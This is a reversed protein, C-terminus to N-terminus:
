SKPRPTRKQLCVSLLAERVNRCAVHSLLALPLAVSVPFYDLAIIQTAQFFLIWGVLVLFDRRWIDHINLDYGASIYSRGPVINSGPASGFLTCIQNPGLGDSTGM